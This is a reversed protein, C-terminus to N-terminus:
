LSDQYDAWTLIVLQLPTPKKYPATTIKCNAFKGESPKLGSDHLQCKNNDDLFVCQKKENDYVPAIVKIFPKNITAQVIPNALVTIMLKDGYGAEIIATMEEPTGNCPATKCMNVCKNCSCQVVDLGTSEKILDIQKSIINQIELRKNM